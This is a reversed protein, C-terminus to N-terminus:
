RHLFGFRKKKDDLEKGESSERLENAAEPAVPGPEGTSFSHGCALCKQTMNPYSYLSEQGCRGCKAGDVHKITGLELRKKDMDKEMSSGIERIRRAFKVGNVADKRALAARANVIHYAGERVDIGHSAAEKFVPEYTEVSQRISDLQSIELDRRTRLQEIHAADVQREVAALLEVAEKLSGQEFIKKAAEYEAEASATDVGIQKVEATAARVISFSSAIERARQEKARDAQIKASEILKNYESVNMAQRAQAAVELYRRSEETRTGFSEYDALLGRLEAEEKETNAMFADYAKTALIELEGLTEERRKPPGDIFARKAEALATRLIPDLEGNDSVLRSFLEDTARISTAASYVQFRSFSELCKNRAERSLKIASYYDGLIMRNLAAEAATDVDFMSPKMMLAEDIHREVKKADETPLELPQAPVRAIAELEQGIEADESERTGKAQGSKVRDLAQRVQEETLKKSAIKQVYDRKYRCNSVDINFEDAVAKLKWITLENLFHWPGEAAPVGGPYDQEENPDPSIITECQQNTVSTIHCFRLVPTQM